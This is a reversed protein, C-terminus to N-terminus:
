EKQKADELIERYQIFGKYNRCWGEINKSPYVKNNDIYGKVNLEYESESMVRACHEFPSAHFPVQNAMRDHLEIQKEYSFEKEDGVITYSTRAAMATSIKVAYDAWGLESNEDTIDSFEKSTFNIKDEFPIHWDGAKLEKPTSENMADWMAEALAMMHIEAQGKNIKLWGLTDDLSLNEINVNLEKLHKLADKKSKFYVEKNNRDTDGYQPCRLNFFNEWETASILVTHWMFPELLRNALQKTVFRNHLVTAEEIANDRARLWTDEIDPIGSEFYENGQMGKHERQWAIPIFPNELVSKVMTNFPIARSSASNKSLMRHTNLEALIFRPFTVLMSTLRDGSPTKSDAVITASIKTM